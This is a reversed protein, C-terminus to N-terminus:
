NSPSKPEKQLTLKYMRGIIISGLLVFNYTVYDPGPGGEPVGPRPLKYRSGPGWEEERRGQVDCTLQVKYFLSRKEGSSTDLVSIKVNRARTHTHASVKGEAHNHRRPFVAV